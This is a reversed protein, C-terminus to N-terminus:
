PIIFLVAKKYWEVCENYEAETFASGDIKALTTMYRTWDEKSQMDTMNATTTAWADFDYKGDINLITVDSGVNDEFLTIGYKLYSPMSTTDISVTDVGLAYADNLYFKLRLAGSTYGTLSGVRTTSNWTGFKMKEVIKDNTLENSTYERSKYTLKYLKGYVGVIYYYNGYQVVAEPEDDIGLSYLDTAAIIKGTKMDIEKFSYETKYTPVSYTQYLRGNKIFGGQTAAHFPTAFRNKADGILLTVDGDELKPLDWNKFVILNNTSSTYSAQQYGAIFIQQNESDIYSNPWNVFDDKSPFTITQVVEYGYVGDTNTIRIVLAKHEDNNEMSFYIVPFEDNADYYESGFNINNCHYKETYPLDLSAIKEYTDLNYIVLEDFKDTAAFLKNGYAAAGQFSQSTTRQLTAVHEWSVNVEDEENAEIWDMTFIVPISLTSTPLMDETLEKTTITIIIEKEVNSGIMDGAVIKTGDNKWVSTITDIYTNDFTITPENELKVFFTSANKITAKAICTESETSTGVNCSLTISKKDDSLIPSVLVTGGGDSVKSFGVDWSIAGYNVTGDVSLRQTLVAYGIALGLVLLLCMWIVTKKKEFYNNKRM